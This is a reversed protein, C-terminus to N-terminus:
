LRRSARMFYPNQKIPRSSKDGASGSDSRSFRPLQEPLSEQQFLLPGYKYLFYPELGRIIEQNREM